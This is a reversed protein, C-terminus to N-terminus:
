AVAALAVFEIIKPAAATAGTSILVEVVEGAAVPITAVAVGGVLVSFAAAAALGLVTLGVIPLLTETVIKGLDDLATGVARVAGGIVTNSMIGDALAQISDQLTDDEDCEDCEECESEKAADIVSRWVRAVNRATKNEDRQWTYWHTLEDLAGWFAVRHMQEDPIFFQVCLTGAPEVVAPLLFGGDSKASPM